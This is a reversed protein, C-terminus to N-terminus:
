HADEPWIADVASRVDKEPIPDWWGYFAKIQSFQCVGGAFERVSHPRPNTSKPSLGLPCCEWKKGNRQHTWALHKKHCNDLSMLSPLEKPKEVERRLIEVVPMAEIPIPNM